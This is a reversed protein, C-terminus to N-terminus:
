ARNKSLNSPYNDTTVVFSVFNVFSNLHNPNDMEPERKEHGEHGEHNYEATAVGLTNPLTRTNLESFIEVMEGDGERVVVALAGQLPHPQILESPIRQTIRAELGLRILGAAAIIIGDLDGTELKELREEINGRLDVVELDPRIANVQEKRRISSTGIRAGRPLQNLKLGSRSILVEDRDISSTLAAVILGEPLPDPLDKASHVACDIRKELLARDIEDTFFDKKEMRALPTVKDRDGATKFGVVAIEIEPYLGKLARIIEEVQKLALRSTRTGIKVRIIRNPAGVVCDPNLLKKWLQEMEREVLKGALEAEGRRRNLNEEALRGLDDLDFLTIGPLQGAAAEVDRPVALDVILLPRRTTVLDGAKVILHPSATASILVDAQNLHLSLGSFRVATAGLERALRAAKQFNRNSVLVMEVGARSLYKGVLAAMKGTGIIVVKRGGLEGLFETIVRRTLSGISVNGQSIKTERRVKNGVRLSRIFIEKMEGTLTRVSGAMDCASRVQEWIQREGPIQSDLGSAVAFLHRIAGKNDYRYLYPRFSSLDRDRAACLYNELSEFGEQRNETQAYLEVRNCTSLIVAGSLGSRSRILRLTKEAEKQPFSLRERVRLPSYVHNTGLIIFNM